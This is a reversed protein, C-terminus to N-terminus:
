ALSAFPPSRGARTRPQGLRAAACETAPTHPQTLLVPLGALAVALAHVPANLVTAHQPYLPCTLPATLFPRGAKAQAMIAAMRMAMACHHAGHRRCCPPLRADESGPLAAALPGLGFLLILFISFGRWM